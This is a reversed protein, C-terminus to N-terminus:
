KSKGNKTEHEVVPKHLSAVLNVLYIFASKISNDPVYGRGFLFDQLNQITYAEEDSVKIVLYEGRNEKRERPKILFDKLNPILLTKLQKPNIM